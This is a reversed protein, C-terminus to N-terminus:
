AKGRHIELGIRRKIIESNEYFKSKGTLLCFTKYDKKYIEYRALRKERSTENRGSFTQQAKEDMVLMHGIGAQELKYILAHDTMDLFLEEDFGHVLILSSLRVAMGSNICDAKMYVGAKTIFNAKTNYRQYRHVPSLPKGASEMMGTIISIKHGQSLNRRELQLVKNALTYAHEFYREKFDTDDDCFMIWGDTDLDVTGSPIDLLEEAKNIGINYAKAIGLNEENRIYIVKEKLHDPLGKSEFDHNSNDVVILSVDEHREQFKLMAPLSKIDEINKQYIVVLIHFM